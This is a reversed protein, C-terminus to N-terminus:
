QSLVQQSHKATMAAVYGISKLSNKENNGDTSSQDKAKGGVMVFVRVVGYTFARNPKIRTILQKAFEISQSSIVYAKARRGNRKV